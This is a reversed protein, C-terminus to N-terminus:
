LSSEESKFRKVFKLRNGFFVCIYLHCRQVDLYIGKQTERKAVNKRKTCKKVLQLTQKHRGNQIKQSIDPISGLSSGYSTALLRAM